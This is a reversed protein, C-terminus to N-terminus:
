VRCALRGHRQVANADGACVRACVHACVCVHTRVCVLAPACVLARASVRAGCAHSQMMCHNAVLGHSLWVCAPGACFCVQIAATKDSHVGDSIFEIRYEGCQGRRTFTLESFMAIGEGDTLAMANELQKTVAGTAKNPEDPSQFGEGLRLGRVM